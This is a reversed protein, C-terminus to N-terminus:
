PHPTPRSLSQGLMRSYNDMMREIYKMPSMCLIGDSDRTFNMGLHYTIPKKGKLKFNHEERLIWLLEKPNKSIITLDDVYCTIYEYHDGMDRMWIDDEAKSPFFGM